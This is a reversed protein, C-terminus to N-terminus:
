ATEDGKIARDLKLGYQIITYKYLKFHFLVSQKRTAILQSIIEGFIETIGEGTEASTLLSKMGERAAFEQVVKQDVQIEEIMDCKNGVLLVPIDEFGDDRLFQLWCKVNDFTYQKTLDYVIIAAKADQYYLRTISHFKEQGATDWIMFKMHVGLDPLNIHKIYFEAGLTPVAVTDTKGNVYHKAISTKGVKSDGLLAIKVDCKIM